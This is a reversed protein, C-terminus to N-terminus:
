SEKIHKTLERFEKKREPDLENKLNSLHVNLVFRLGKDVDHFAALQLGRLNPGNEKEIEGLRKLAARVPQEVQEEIQKLIDSM